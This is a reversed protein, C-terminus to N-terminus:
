EILGLWREVRPLIEVSRIERLNGRGAPAGRALFIGCLDDYHNLYGHQGYYRSPRVVTGDLRSSASYGPRLFIVM